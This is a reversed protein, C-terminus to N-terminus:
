DLDHPPDKDHLARRLDDPKKKKKLCFVAYSIYGHSSNLRTSKRDVVLGACLLAVWHHIFPCARPRDRVQSLFSRKAPRASVKPRSFRARKRFTAADSARRTGHALAKNSRCIM